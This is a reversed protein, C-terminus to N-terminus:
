RAEQGGADREGSFSAMMRTGPPWFGRLFTMVAPFIDDPVEYWPVHGARQLQLLRSNKIARAWARSSAMSIILDNTGHLILTPTQLKRADETWDYNGLSRMFPRFRPFLVSPWENEYQCNRELLHANTSSGVYLGAHLDWWERCHEEGPMSAARERLRKEAEPDLRRAREESPYYTAFLALTPAAASVMVLRDVRDPHLMAYRAALAGYVSTGILSVRDAGSFKQVTELDSFFQEVNATAETSPDSGQRGRPDYFIFRLDKAAEKEFRAVNWFVLPVIVTRDGSGVIRYRLKAGDSTTIFGESPVSAVPPSSAPPTTACGCVLLSILIAGRIKM